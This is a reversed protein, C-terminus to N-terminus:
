DLNLLKLANKKYVEVGPQDFPNVGTLFCSLACAKMFFYMLYGLYFEDLAPIDLIINDVGGSTHAEIVSEVMVDNIYNISKGVLKNLGDFDNKDEKFLVESGTSGIKLVTEFLCPTGDQIFQGFSHLDTTFIASTPLIGRKQKGESEGFLQKIWECLVRLQPEYTVFLEVSKGRSGLVYRMIAYQYCYNNEIDLSCDKEAQKVGSLFKDIDIGAVAIPFLGVPTIVSYRGGINSPISFTACGIEEAEKRLAGKKEDTIAIIAKAYNEGLKEVLLDKLLRYSLSTELTKGSKSIVVVAFNKNKLYELLQAIYRASMTNGLYIIECKSKPFLGNIGEIVSRAGLYSGGVGVVVLSDFNDLVYKATSKIKEIESESLSSAFDGWGFMGSASKKEEKCWNEFDLIKENFKDFDISDSQTYLVTKIM